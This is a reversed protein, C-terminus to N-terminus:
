SFEATRALVLAEPGLLAGIEETFARDPRVSLTPTPFLVVEYNGVKLGLSVPCEGRHSELIDRLREAKAKDWASVRVRVHRADAMKAQELPLLEACLLRVKGDEVPEAKGKVMVIEDEALRAAVRKYTEPFVLVEVSGDLDELLFTAMRDGKRTKILRLGTILGGISVETAETLTSLRACTANAWRSLEDRFRMLPHGTIFFGLSEKEFGLREGESWAPVDPLREPAAPSEAHADLMGFLNHQGQAHDRQRRQGADLARDIAAFLSARRQDLSDLCGSKIFSEIVRRNVTKLDIRECLDTFSRFAGDARARIVAEVAGEGVNKIASLGFRIARDGVVSFYLDSENVDPPLVDIKMERCEGIYLVMRDTNARESTLLAAMFRAPHNTKFYATQYALWAYAASHSKNFGYGAFQEMQDWIRRAKKEGLGKEACGKLFKDMQKAMVQANKKGMAKRLIDAEGLTFGALASAIQM